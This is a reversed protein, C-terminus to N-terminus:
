RYSISLVTWSWDTLRNWAECCAELIAVYTEFVRNSLDTQRLFHWVKGVPKFKEAVRQALSM